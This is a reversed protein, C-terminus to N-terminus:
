PAPWRPMRRWRSLGMRCPAPASVGYLRRRRSWRRWQWPLATAISASCVECTAGRTSHTPSTPTLASSQPPTAARRRRCTSSPAHTTSTASPPCVTKIAAGTSSGPTACRPPRRPATRRWPVRRTDWQTCSCPTLRWSHSGSGRWAVRRAVSVSGWWTRTWGWRRSFKPARIRHWRPSAWRPLCRSCGTSWRRSTLRWSPRQPYPPTPARPTIWSTIRACAPWPTLLLTHACATPATAPSHASTTYM